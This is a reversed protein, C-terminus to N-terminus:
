TEKSSQKLRKIEALDDRKSKLHEQILKLLVQEQEDKPNISLLLTFLESCYQNLEKLFSEQNFEVTKKSKKKIPPAQNNKNLCYLHAGNESKTKLVLGQEELLLMVKRVIGYSLDMCESVEKLTVKDSRKILFNFIKIQNIETKIYM